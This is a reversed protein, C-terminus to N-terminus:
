SLVPLALPVGMVPVLTRPDSVRVCNRSTDCSSAQMVLFGDSATTTESQSRKVVRKQRTEKVLQTPQKDMCVVPCTEGRDGLGCANENRMNWRGLRGLSTLTISRAAHEPPSRTQKVALWAFFRWHM